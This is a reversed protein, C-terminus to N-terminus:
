YYTVSVDKGLAKMMRVLADVAQSKFRYDVLSQGDTHAVNEARGIFFDLRDSDLLTRTLMSAADKGSIGAKVLEGADIAGLIDLVRTLTIIGETVLDIGRMRGMPPIGDGGSGLDIEIDCGLERAFLNGTAGGCVAKRGPKQMFRRVMEADKDKSRPPGIAVSTLRPQRASICVATTDDGPKGAYFQDCVGTLWRTLQASDGRAKPVTRRLYEAVNEWQWGLNLIGGLGAHIVGDTVLFIHDGDRVEFEGELIQKDAVKRSITDIKTVTGARFLFADPTDYEVIFGKGDEFLQLISFTSYAVGRVQCIPLTRGIIDVVEDISSGEKLMYSAIRTTLTSLINAKVGSGLGDSMVAMISGPARAIEVRDGCISEGHKILSTYSAEYYLGPM